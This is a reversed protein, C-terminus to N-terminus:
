NKFVIPFFRVYETYAYVRDMQFSGTTGDPMVFGYGWVETLTLGDNPAGVPQNASRTFSSFPLHIKQWGTFDDVFTAEFREASDAAQYVRVYDVLTDQPMTMGDSIQGGFNGGIAMNLIVFFPHNFVWENPAVDAPIAEHFHIDDVYWDISNTTWEVAFVHYTTSVPEAFTYTGGFASGGSYGPGHLTGFVENPIRSVYEMIDIEGSQPWGVEPINTGLMWFAPWLGDPGTPVQVRAEMRGFEFDLRDQTILRASTYECPGYWCVLDTTDTNVENMRIVLNGNGDTAANAPDNTYFQRESNGWGVIENLAGDGLEHQWVNPNPPTGAPDNFEDSWVLTWDAPDVMSTTTIMNDKLQMTVTEGSSSGYYWFSLGDYGSWDQGQSYIRDFSAPDTTTDYEVNLVDEYAPQGPVATTESDMITMVSLDVMGDQNVFPHYGEFDDVLRPDVPDLDVITLVARRQFGLPASGEYLNVAVRKDGTHKGDAFTPIQITQTTVGAPFTLTGSVPTYQRDVRATSEASAYTVTVTETYAQTLAVTLVATEGEDVSYKAQEFAASLPKAAATGCVQVDDLYTVGTLGTSGFAWGHVENRDFDDTPAGNGIIKQNFDAFRVEFRKWGTFNDLFPYSWIQTDDVISGANRNDQVEFLLTTGSNTGYAWFSIAEYTSWDQTVWTDVTANEFHHTVGGWSGVPVNSDMQLVTNTAMQTTTIDITANPGTWTFFGIDLGHSDTGSPLQGDEFDDVMTSRLACFNSEEDDVITVTAQSPNGLTVSVPNSLQVTFTKNGGYVTNASTNVSITQQTEGSLFTLTGSVPTYESSGATGDATAYDVTVDETSTTNLTVTLVATEGEAVSYDGSEFQTRLTINGADGYVSLHDMKFSGVTGDLVFVWNDVQSVDYPTVGFTTFPLTILQWGVFDDVFTARRDGANATQIEFEHVAGSNGGYFWFSVGQMDSWNQTPNLAAGFGGWTTVNATVSLVDNNGVQGPLALPDSDAITPVAVNVVMGGDSYQFWGAPVGGEFDAFPQLNVLQIDDLKLSGVTGDLVFVWNDVQSVDYAGGAGFTNFPFILQRWGVFSDVFSARRDGASVTQIEFEHTTGSNEGYFWFSVADYDSWDQAPNLAAGFGAWTAVNATVSLIDNNGVQGPLALSDSDSITPVVANVVTGGDGYQFWGAPVGGEFDAIVPFAATVATVGEPESLMRASALNTVFAYTFMLGVFVIALVSVSKKLKM